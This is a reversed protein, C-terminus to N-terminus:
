RDHGPHENDTGRGLYEANRWSPVSWASKAAARIVPTTQSRGTRRVRCRERHEEIPLDDAGTDIFLAVFMPHM